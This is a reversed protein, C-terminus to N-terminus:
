KWLAPASTPSWGPQSTHPMVCEYQTGEYMVQAGAEYNTWTEWPFPRVSSFMANVKEWLNFATKPNWGTIAKHALVCKYLNGEFYVLDDVLYHAGEFFDIVEGTLSNYYLMWVAPANPPPTVSHFGVRAMYTRGEYYVLEGDSYYNNSKWPKGILNYNSEVWYESGEMPETDVSTDHELICEWTKFKHSVYDGVLYYPEDSRWQDVLRYRQVHEPPDYLGVKTFTFTTGGQLGDGSENLTIRVRGNQQESEGSPIDFVIDTFHGMDGYAVGDNNVEIVADGKIAQEIPVLNGNEDKVKAFDCDPYSLYAKMRTVGDGNSREAALMLSYGSNIKAVFGDIIVDIKNSGPDNTITIKKGGPVDEIRAYNTDDSDISWTTGSDDFENEYGHPTDWAGAMMFLALASWSDEFYSSFNGPDKYFVFHDNIPDEGEKRRIFGNSPVTPNDRYGNYQSTFLYFDLWSHENLAYKNFMDNYTKIGAKDAAYITAMVSMQLLHNTWNEVAVGDLQSIAAFPNTDDTDDIKPAIHKYKAYPLKIADIAFNLTRMDGYMLYDLAQRMPYRAANIAFHDPKNEYIVKPTYVADLQGNRFEAFDPVFGTHNPQGVVIGAATGDEDQFDDMQSILKGIRNRVENQGLLEYCARLHTILWDSPRTIGNGKSLKYNGKPLFVNDDKVGYKEFIDVLKHYRRCSIELYNIGGYQRDMGWKHHAMLFAFAIDLNGDMAIGSTNGNNGKKLDLVPGVLAGNSIMPEEPIKYLNLPTYSDLGWIPDYDWGEAIVEEVRDKIDLYQQKYVIDGNADLKAKAPIVWSTLHEYEKIQSSTFADHNSADYYEVVRALKKFNDHDNALVALMMGFGMAEDTSLYITNKEKPFEGAEGNAGMLVIAGNFSEEVLADSGFSEFGVPIPLTIKQLYGPAFVTEKVPKGNEDIEGTYVDVNAGDRWKEYYAKAQNYTPVGTLDVAFVSTIVCVFLIAYVVRKM